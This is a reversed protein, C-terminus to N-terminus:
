FHKMLEESVEEFEGDYFAIDNYNLYRTSHEAEYEPMWCSILHDKYKEFEM